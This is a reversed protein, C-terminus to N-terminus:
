KEAAVDKKEGGLVENVVRNLEGLLQPGEIGDYITDVTVAKDDFVSAVFNVKIDLADAEKAVEGSEFKDMMEFAERVKRGSVYDQEHVVKQGEKNRLELRIM